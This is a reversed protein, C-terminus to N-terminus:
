SISNVNNFTGQISEYSQLGMIWQRLHPQSRFKFSFSKSTSKPLMSRVDDSHSPFRHNCHSNTRRQDYASHDVTSNCLPASSESRLVRVVLATIQAIVSRFSFAM